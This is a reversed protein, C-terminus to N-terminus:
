GGKTTNDYVSMQFGTGCAPKPLFLCVAFFKRATQLGAINFM